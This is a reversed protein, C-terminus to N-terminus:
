AMNRDCLFLDVCNDKIFTSIECRKCVMDNGNVPQANFSAAIFPHVNQKKRKVRRRFRHRHPHHYGINLHKLRDVTFLSLLSTKTGLSLLETRTYSYVPIETNSQPLEM